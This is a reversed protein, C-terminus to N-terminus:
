KKIIKSVLLTIVVAGAFIGFIGPEPVDTPISNASAVAVFSMSALTAISIKLGLNKM